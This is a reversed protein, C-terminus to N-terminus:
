RGYCKVIIDNKGAVSVASVVAPEKSSHAVGQSTILCQCVLGSNLLAKFKDRVLNATIETNAFSLLYFVTCNVALVFM